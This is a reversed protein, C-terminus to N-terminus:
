KLALDWILQCRAKTVLRRPGSDWCSLSLRGRKCMEADGLVLGELALLSHQGKPHLLHGRVNQSNFPGISKSGEMEDVLRSSPKPSLSTTQQSPFLFPWVIVPGNIQLLVKPLGSLLVVRPKRMQLIPSVCHVQSLCLILHSYTHSACYLVFQCLSCFFFFNVNM